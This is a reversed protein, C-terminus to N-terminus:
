GRRKLGSETLASQAETAYKSVENKQLELITPYANKYEESSLFKNKGGYEKSKEEIWNVADEYTDFKSIDVKELPQESQNLEGSDNRLDDFVYFGNEKKLYIPDPIGKNEDFMLEKSLIYNGANMKHVYYNEGNFSLTKGNSWLEKLESETAKIKNKIEQKNDVKPEPNYEIGLESVPVEEHITKGKADELDVSLGDAYLGNVTYQKGQYTVVDGNKIHIESLQQHPEPTDKYEAFPKHQKKGDYLWTKFDDVGVETIAYFGKWDKDYNELYAAKAQEAGEFGIMVKSEDFKGSKPNVQDIVFVQKSEPNNGIFTDVHDGDKGVTGKFYGYHSNMEHEWAKGDEDVGSRVSGKPNEVTIDIDQIVVHGKKYNGAEKQAETPNTNIDQSQIQQDVASQKKKEQKAEIENWMDIEEQERKATAKQQDAESMMSRLRSTFALDSFTVNGILKTDYRGASFDVIVLQGTAPRRMVTVTDNVFYGQNNLDNLIDRVQEYEDFTLSEVEDLKEIEFATGESTEVKEGVIPIRPNGQLAKLIDYEDSIGESEKRVAVGDEFALYTRVLSKYLNGDKDQFLGKTGGEGKKFLTVEKTNSNPVIENGGSQILEPSSPTNSNVEKNRQSNNYFSREETSFTDKFEDYVDQKTKVRGLFMDITQNKLINNIEVIFQKFESEKRRLVTALLVVNEDFQENEFMNIQSFYDSLNGGAKYIHLVAENLEPLLSEELKSNQLLPVIAKVIKQRYQMMGDLNLVKIQDENMVNGIIVAELYNRGNITFNNKEFLEPVENQNIIGSDLLHKLVETQAPESKYFDALSDYTDIVPIIRGILAEDNRKTAIIAKETSSKSKENRANFKAFTDVNLPLEDTVEFYIRPNEVSDIQEQNFGYKKGKTNLGEVYKTDTGQKAAIQGSMTRNNGSVVVGDKIVIPNDIARSDFDAAKLEVEAKKNTYDNDNVNRGEPTQPFGESPQYTESNHSPTVANAGALVWHGNIVEGNPLTITDDWGQVKNSNDWREKITTGVVGSETTTKIVPKFEVPASNQEKIQLLTRYRERLTKEELRLKNKKAMDPSGDIKKKISTLQKNVAILTNNLDNIAEKEGFQEKSYTFNQEDTMAEFDITGDKKTPYIVPAIETINGNGDNM